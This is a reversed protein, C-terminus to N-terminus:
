TRLIFTVRRIFGRVKSGPPLIVNCLAKINTRHTADDYCSYHIRPCEGCTIGEQTNLWTFYIGFLREGLYGDVRNIREPKRRDFEGLIDFLWNCYEKFLSWRMVYINGYYEGSGNLYMDAAPCFKPFKEAIIEYVLKLDEINHGTSQKYREWVPLGTYEWIPAIVDFGDIASLVNEKAFQNPDPQRKIYYPRPRASQIPYHLVKGPRLDLYRRYHFFGVYDNESFTKNKWIWYHARLESYDEEHAMNLGDKRDARLLSTSETDPVSIPKHSVVFLHINPKAKM